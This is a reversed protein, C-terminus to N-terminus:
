YKITNEMNMPAKPGRINLLMVGPFQSSHFLCFTIDTKWKENLVKMVGSLKLLDVETIHVEGLYADIEDPSQSIIVFPLAGYLKFPFKLETLLENVFAEHSFPREVDLTPVFSLTVAKPKSSDSAPDTTVYVDEGRIEVPYSAVDVQAPGQMVKGTKVNFQSGHWPCTVVDGKVPGECLPGGAHPCANDVAYVNGDVRFLALAKGNASVCLSASEKVDNVSAVRVANLEEKM